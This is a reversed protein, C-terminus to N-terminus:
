KRHSKMHGALGIRNKCVKGCVVCKFEETKEVPKEEEKAEPVEEVVEEKGVKEFRGGCNDLLHGQLDKEKVDVPKDDKFVYERDSSASTAKKEGKRLYKIKM